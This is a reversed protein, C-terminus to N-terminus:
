TARYIYIYIYIYIYVKREREGERRKIELYRTATDMQLIMDRANVLIVLALYFAMFPDGTFLYRTWLERVVEVECKGM